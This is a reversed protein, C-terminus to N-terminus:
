NHHQPQNLISLTSTVNRTVAARKEAMSPTISVIAVLGWWVLVTQDVYSIGFFGVVNAFLAAGTDVRLPLPNKDSECSRRAIGLYRFGYVIILVFILLPAVGSTTGVAVYQNAHDWM